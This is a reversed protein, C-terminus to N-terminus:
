TGNMTTMTMCLLNRELTKKWVIKENTFYDFTIHKRTVIKEDLGERKIEYLSRAIHTNGNEKM